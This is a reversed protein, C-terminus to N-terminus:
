GSHGFNINSSATGSAENEHPLGFAFQGTTGTMTPAIDIDFDAEGDFYHGIILSAKVYVDDNEHMQLGQITEIGDAEEIFTAMRNEGNVAEMEGVHLINQLADLCVHVIQVDACKLLQILPPICGQQVLFKIQSPTGTTTANSIAWAADKQVTFEGSALQHLLLPVMNADLVEQIQSQTGAMVNSIVWCTEKRIFRKEHKLLPLLRPLTGLDLMAQTQQANGNMINGVIRLALNQVSSLQHGLLDVVRGCVGSEIVAQIKETRDDSLYMITWCANRLIEEDSSHILAPLIQLAPSVLNFDAKPKGGCLNTLTWTANRVLRINNHRQRLVMLLPMVAGANLVIDRCVPSDGAINGLAWIAQDSVNEESSLMLQCLIPVMGAEILAETHTSSGSAINTVCWAAELQLKPLDHRKLFHGLIALVNLSLVQDIPPEDPRSLVIRLRTVAELQVNEDLAQIQAAIKPLEDVMASQSQQVGDHDQMSTDNDGVEPMRRRQSLRDDRISKRISLTTDDRRRRLAESDIGKKFSRQRETLRSM